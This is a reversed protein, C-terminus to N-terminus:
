STSGSRCGRGRLPRAHGALHRLRGHEGLLQAHPKEIFGTIRRGRGRARRLRRPARAGYTAVTLPAGAPRRPRGLLAGYDLDTLIDGNMLLFHEPLRDRSRRARAWPGSRRSRTSTTSRSAGSAVRRRRLGPHAPRPTRHRPDGAHVRLPAAPAPRDRPHVHEDGIPVLPKPICTTYPRLRVGKGGALIVAHRAPETPRHGRQRHEDMDPGGTPVDTCVTRECTTATPRTAPSTTPTASGSATPALGEELTISPSGSPPGRAARQQRVGAAHVESDAPRARRTSRRGRGRRGHGRRHASSTASRSRTAPGQTSPRAWWTPLPPAHGGRRLRPPTRARLQFRADPELSGLSSRRTARRRDALHDDPDRRPRVPPPRLHQVAPADGGAPRLEPPLERRAQRGGIKSASYPSQAQLPHDESIPVTRATGYVESTSTHVVRSTGLTAPPKSCTSRAAPTPTSTRVGAGPLLVPHRHAGRPPVRRRRRTLLHAGVRRRPRRRAM